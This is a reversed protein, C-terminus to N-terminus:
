ETVKSLRYEIPTMYNLSSHIRKNKYWLVYNKLERKLEELSKFVRNFAFETKIIKYTAEVVVNDYLCGKKSLSRKIEFAKLVEEITKNKFENWRDTHFVKIKTLNIKSSLFAEYV